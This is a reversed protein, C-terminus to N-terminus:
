TRENWAIGSGKKRADRDDEGEGGKRRAADIRWDYNRDSGGGPSSLGAIALNSPRRKDRERDEAM